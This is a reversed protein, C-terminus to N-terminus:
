SNQFQRLQEVLKKMDEPMDVEFTVEKKLVPHSFSLRFAHLAQRPFDKLLKTCFVVREQSLGTLGRRRGGYTPDGFVPHGISATHVRIQHTRGTELKFDCLGALNGFHEVLTMHTVAWKGEGENVTMKKRDRLNRSIFSEITQTIKEPIGWVVAKYIRGATKDAFQRSLAAHVIDNKAVVMLGSTDKDLRHVIGPRSEGSLTSLNNQYHHVLANVLTGSWNGVAPHVVMGAPKNIVILSEDEHIIDLYIEEPLIDPQPREELIVKIQDGPAIKESAKMPRNEKLINNKQILIKIYSRSVDPLREALYKDVRVSEQGAPVLIEIEPNPNDSM